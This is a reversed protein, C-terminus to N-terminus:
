PTVVSPVQEALSRAGLADPNRAYLIDLYGSGVCMYLVRDVKLIDLYLLQLMCIFVTTSVSSIHTHFVQLFVWFVSSVYAQLM